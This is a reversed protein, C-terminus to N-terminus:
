EHSNDRKAGGTLADEVPAQGPPEKKDGRSELNESIERLVLSLHWLARDVSSNGRSTLEITQRSMKKGLPDSM